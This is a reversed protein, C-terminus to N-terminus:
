RAKFLVHVRQWMIIHIFICLTVVKPTGAWQPEDRGFRAVENFLASSVAFHEANQQVFRGCFNERAPFDSPMLGHVRQLNYTYLLQKHLVWWISMHSINLERGVERMDVGADM